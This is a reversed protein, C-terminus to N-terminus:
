EEFVQRPLADSLLTLLPSFSEEGRIKPTYLNGKVAKQLPLSVTVRMGDGERSELLLAGGHAAAGYRAIPLGLRLGTGPKPLSEPADGDMMATLDAQPSVCQLFCDNKVTHWLPDDLEELWQRARQSFQDAWGKRREETETFDSELQTSALNLTNTQQQWTKQRSINCSSEEASINEEKKSFLDMLASLDMLQKINM